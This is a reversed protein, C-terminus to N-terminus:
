VNQGPPAAVPESKWTVASLGEEKCEAEAALAGDIEYGIAYIMDNQTRSLRTAHVGHNLCNQMLLLSQKADARFLNTPCVSRLYNAADGHKDFILIPIPAGGGKTSLGYIVFM